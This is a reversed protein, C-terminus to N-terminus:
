KMDIFLCKFKAISVPDREIKSFDFLDKKHQISTGYKLDLSILKKPPKYVKEFEETLCERLRGYEDKMWPPTSDLDEDDNTDYEDYEEVEVNKPKFM